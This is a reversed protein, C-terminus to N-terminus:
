LIINALLSNIDKENITTKDKLADYFFRTFLYGDRVLKNIRKNTDPEDVIIWEIARVLSEDIIHEIKPYDSLLDAKVLKM